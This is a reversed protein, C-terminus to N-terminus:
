PHSIVQHLPSDFDNQLESSIWQFDTWAIVPPVVSLM